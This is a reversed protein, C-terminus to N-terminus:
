RAEEPSPAAPQGDAASALAAAASLYAPGRYSEPYDSELMAVYLRAVELLPEQQARLTRVEAMLDANDHTLVANEAQAAALQAEASLLDEYREVRLTMAGRQGIGQQTQVTIVGWPDGHGCCCSLTVIGADWLHKVAPVICTDIALCKRGQEDLGYEPHDPKFEYVGNNSWLLDPIPVLTTESCM